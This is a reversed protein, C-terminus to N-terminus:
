EFFLYAINIYGLEEFLMSLVGLNNETRRALWKRTWLRRRRKEHRKKEVQLILILALAGLSKRRVADM